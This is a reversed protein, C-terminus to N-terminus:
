EKRECNRSGQEVIVNLLSNLRNVMRRPNTLVGAALLANDFVQCLVLDALEKNSCKLNILHKMMKHKPNIEVNFPISEIDMGLQKMMMKNKLIEGHNVVIAPHTTYRKTEKVSAVKDAKFTEKFWECMIEVEERSLSNECEEEVPVDIKAEEADEIPLGKYSQLSSVMIKDINEDHMLLVEYGLKNFPEMYPSELAVTKDPVVMFYIAKQEASMRSKYEELTTYSESKTSKFLLIEKIKEGNVEDTCIGEKFYHNFSEFIGEYKVRESSALDSFWKLIRRTLIEKMRLMVGNNQLLERSINLQVDECDVVGRVFRMWAPLLGDCKSKILVRRSYLEIEGEKSYLQEFPSSNPVYLISRVNLPSDIKYVLEALPDRYDGSLKRYFEKLEDGTIESKEKIWLPEVQNVREGNLYIPFSVFNNVLAKETFQMADERLQIVIKTGANSVDAEAIEYGGQGSTKWMYGKGDKRSKTYVRIEEGVMLASYFGIGFSGILNSKASGEKADQIYKLTGSKAITGLHDNLEEYTMGIGSDEVVLQRKGADCWVRIALEGGEGNGLGDSSACGSLEFQRQKELADSANAVLERIFVPNSTPIEESPIASNATSYPRHHHLLTSPVGNFPFNNPRFINCIRPISLARRSIISNMISM